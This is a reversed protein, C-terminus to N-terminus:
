SYTRLYIHNDVYKLIYKENTKTGVRSISGPTRCCYFPSPVDSFCQVNTYQIKVNCRVIYVQTM